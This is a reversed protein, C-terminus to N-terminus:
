RGLSGAFKEALRERRFTDAVFDVFARTKAPLHTRSAYYISISGADAWWHPVVRVLAGSALQAQVDPVALLAVGLGHQAAQRMAAPDNFALRETMEAAAEAGEADRMVWQRVRGTREARMVIGDLAALDAPRTVPPREALYGPAAVAVIHAPALPRAVVGPTLEFGGGIAADYGEAALDVPRNEFRWDPRVQPYRALFGPLMPLIHEVGFSPSLSVKLVGAPEGGDRAAAIAAQLSALDTRVAQYFREGAETLALKRTTRHFLRAGLDAELAAVNRSVAAPTLGLRRAAASFGGSEASRVFAELNALSHM